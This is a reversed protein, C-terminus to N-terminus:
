GNRSAKFSNFFGICTDWSLREKQSSWFRMTSTQVLITSVSSISRVVMLINRSLMKSILWCPIIGVKRLCLGTTEGPFFLLYSGVMQSLPLCTIPRSRGDTQMRSAGFGKLWSGCERKLWRSCSEFVRWPSTAAWLPGELKIISTGLRRSWLELFAMSNRRGNGDIENRGVRVQRMYRTMSHLIRSTCKM